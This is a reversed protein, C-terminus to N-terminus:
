YTLKQMDSSSVHGVLARVALLGWKGVATHAQAVLMDMNGLAQTQVVLMDLNGLARRTQVM